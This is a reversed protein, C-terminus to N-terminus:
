ELNTPNIANNIWFDATKFFQWNQKGNNYLDTVLVGSDLLTGLGLRM